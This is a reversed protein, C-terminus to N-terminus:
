SQESVEVDDPHTFTSFSMGVMEGSEYGLMRELAPNAEVARGERDVSIIGVSAREFLLRFRENEQAPSAQDAVCPDAPGGPRKASGTSSAGDARAHTRRM